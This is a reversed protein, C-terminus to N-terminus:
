PNTDRFEKVLKLTDGTDEMEFIHPQSNM